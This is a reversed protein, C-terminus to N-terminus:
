VHTKWKLMLCFVYLYSLLFIPSVKNILLVSIPFLKLAQNNQMFTKLTEFM